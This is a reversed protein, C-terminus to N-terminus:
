EEFLNVNKNELVVGNHILSLHSSKWFVQWKSIEDIWRISIVDNISSVIKKYAQDLQNILDLEWILNNLKSYSYNNNKDLKIWSDKNNILYNNCGKIWDLIIDNSSSVLSEHFIIEDSLSTLNTKIDFYPTKKFINLYNLSFNTIWKTLDNVGIKKNLYNLKVNYDSFRLKWLRINAYHYTIVSLFKNTQVLYERVLDYYFSIATKDLKKIDSAQKFNALSIDKKSDILNKFIPLYFSTSQYEISLNNKPNIFKSKIAVFDTNIDLANKVKFSNKLNVLYKPLNAEIEDASMKDIIQKDKYFLWHQNKYSEEDITEEKKKSGLFSSFVTKETQRYSCSSLFFSFGLLSLLAKLFNKNKAYM